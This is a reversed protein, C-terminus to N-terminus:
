GATSEIDMTGKALERSRGELQEAARLLRQRQPESLGPQSARVRYIAAEKRLELHDM